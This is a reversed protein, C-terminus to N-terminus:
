LLLEAPGVSRVRLETLAGPGFVGELAKRYGELDERPVYAQITGAFGGGHVRSVIRGPAKGGPGRGRRAAFRRSLALALAIGQERPNGPPAINQLLEWSSAGSEEVLGLFVGFTETVAPGGSAAAMGELAGRMLDVRENEDFFHLARLLARDGCRERLLRARPPDGLAADLQERGAERLSKGGLFAAVSRMEEPIAGYDATLDAHNGGTNVVCLAYGARGPDFDLRTLLPEDGGFDIAAAGGSASAAQDMLGSPKGYYRNEAEQAIKALELAPLAGGNYLGDFIKGVLVELAASSSLGSGPFVTSGGNATWGRVPIGRRHFGAAVGRILAETTGREEERASLGGLDIAADPFGTSRFLVKGDERPAAAALADLQVSAALVKGRNHDTHNGGLETRGAATFFRIDGRTEPFRSGPFAEEELLGEAFGRARNRAAELAEEGYLSRLLAEGRKEGLAAIWERGTVPPVGPAM